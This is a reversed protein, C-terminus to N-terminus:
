QECQPVTSAPYKADIIIMIIIIIIMIIIIM